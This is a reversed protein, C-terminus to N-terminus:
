EMTHISCNDIFHMVCCETGLPIEYILTETTIARLMTIIVMVGTEMITTPKDNHTLQFKSTDKFTQKM